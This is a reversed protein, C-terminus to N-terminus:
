IRTLVEKSTFHPVSNFAKTGKLIDMGMFQSITSSKKEVHQGLSIFVRFSSCGVMLHSKANVLSVKKSALRFTSCKLNNKERAAPNISM